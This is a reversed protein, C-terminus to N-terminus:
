QKITEDPLALIEPEAWSIEQSFDHCLTMIIANAKKHGEHALDEDYRMHAYTYLKSLKRDLDISLIFFDKLVSPGTGLKGKFSDLEPWHPKVEPRGVEKLEKEWDELSSFLAEVNWKDSEPIEEREKTTEAVETM